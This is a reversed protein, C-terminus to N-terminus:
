NAVLLLSVEDPYLVARIVMGDKEFVHMRGMQDAQKWGRRRIEGLYRAFQKGNLSPSIKYFTWGNKAHPKEVKKSNAPIPFDPHVDSPKFSVSFVPSLYLFICLVIVSLTILLIWKRM